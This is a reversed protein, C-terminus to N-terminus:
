AHARASEDILLMWVMVDSHNVTYFSKDSLSVVRRCDCHSTRCLASIVERLVVVCSSRM